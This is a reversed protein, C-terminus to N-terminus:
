LVLLHFFVTISIFALFGTSTLLLRRRITTDPNPSSESNYSYYNYTLNLVYSSGYYTTSTINFAGGRLGSARRHVGRRSRSFSRAAAINDILLPLAQFNLLDQDNLTADSNYTADSDM